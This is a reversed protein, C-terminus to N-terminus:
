KILSVDIIKDGVEIAQVIEMGKIVTAFITYRGDLHPTASHTIFWQTGETDKGASAMGVSGETYRRLNFESRISYDESGFGDGRNCGGQIVFNPVVRHFNKGNFYKKNVLEVFNAVSGPAEEIFLHLIIEGKDTKIKAQQNAPISKVLKWDIPHTFPNKPFIPKEKGEFYAIAEELPQLAEVDKPLSLKNKAVSLFSYDKILERFGLEPNKLASAVIGIVGPDGLLIAEQYAIAFDQRKENPFKQNLNTLAQAASTKIVLVANNKLETTIFDLLNISSSAAILLAAKQYDNTSIQYLQVIDKEVDANGSELTLKYLNAQTRWNKTAKVKKIFLTVWEPTAKLAESAAIGVNTNPDDLSEVLAKSAKISNFSALARVASIRVRYDLETKLIQLLPSIVKASDLKRLANVATMRVSVSKDACSAILLDSYRTVSIKQARNFFHVSGLRAQAPCNSKLFESQKTAIISDALGRLGLQYNAWALGIQSLTDTPNVGKLISLDEKRITKGLAELVERKVRPDKEDLAPILANGSAICFTQGLAFAAAIRAEVIPDELVMNGLQLAATSDQVSALAIAAATRYDANKNLLLQILSDTQRHDQYDAIAIFVPDSFKNSKSTCGVVIAVLLVFAFSRFSM